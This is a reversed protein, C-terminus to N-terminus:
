AIRLVVNIIGKFRVEPDIYDRQLNDIVGDYSKKYPHIM